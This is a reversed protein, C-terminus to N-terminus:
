SSPPSDSDTVPVGDGPEMLYFKFFEFFKNFDIDGTSNNGTSTTSDPRVEEHLDGRLVERLPLVRLPPVGRERPRRIWGEGLRKQARTTWTRLRAAEPQVQRVAGQDEVVNRASSGSTSSPHRM